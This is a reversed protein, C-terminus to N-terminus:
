MSLMKYSLSINQLCPSWLQIGNFDKINYFTSALTAFIGFAIVIISLTCESRMLKKIRTAMVKFLTPPAAPLDLAGYKGCSKVPSDSTLKEIEEDHIAELQLMKTYFIPPLIFILPGTLTGGIVGMVLDFKPILEGLLVALLIITSRVIIRGINFALFNFQFGNSFTMFCEFFM